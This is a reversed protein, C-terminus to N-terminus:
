RPALVDAPKKVLQELKFDPLVYVWEGLRAQLGAAEAKVEDLGKRPAAAPEETAPAGAATSDPAPAAAQASPTFRAALAEDVRASFRTRPGSPLTWTRAEVVLGDFTEVTTVVPAAAGPAFGAAPEVAELTLDALSAGIANGVAPFALERGAPVDPVSFSNGEPSAKLVRLSTGDPQTITVAHVRTPAIDTIGRDLWDAAERPVDFAGSVLWSTAEGARRAFAREGGGVSTTGIIVATKRDGASLDLRVGGAGEKEIDEVKLRDYLEPSSTKEEIIAAEALAILNRRIRGVDAGYGGREAVAWRDGRRELTAVTRDGGARVVIRDIDNLQAKLDPLLLGGPGAAPGQSVSVAVALALLVALAALLLVLTRSNM